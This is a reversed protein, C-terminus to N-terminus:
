FYYSVDNFQMNRLFQLIINRLMLYLITGTCGLPMNRFNIPINTGINGIKHHDVIEIIEAEDLGVVSQEKENHDVM